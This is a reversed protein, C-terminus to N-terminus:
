VRNEGLYNHVLYFLKRTPSLFVKNSFIRILFKYTLFGVMKIIFYQSLNKKRLLNVLYFVLDLYRSDKIRELSWGKYVIDKYYDRILGERKARQYLATNPYFVLPYLKVNFNRPLSAIFKISEILSEKKEWPNHVIFHLNCIIDPYLSFFDVIRDIRERSYGRHYLKISTEKNISQVGMQVRSLGVRILEVLKRRNFQVPSFEIQFPLNIEKKYRECFERIEEKSRILFNEDQICVSEFGFKEINEKIENIVRGISRKRIFSGKDKYLGHISNNCCYKCDHSCGRTTFVSYRSKDGMKILNNKLLEKTMLVFEENQLIYHSTLNYDPDPLEDLNNIFLRVDNKIDKGIWLNKIDEFDENRELCNVLELITEEGEGRCVIDVNDMCREPDVTPHIGGWVIPAMINRKLYKTIQEAYGLFNTMVSIGVLGSSSVMEVLQNLVNKSLGGRFNNREVMVFILDVQHGYQKLYSSISRVGYHTVNSCPIIFSIKM